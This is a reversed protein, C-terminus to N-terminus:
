ASVEIEARHNIFRAVNGFKSSETRLLCNNVLEQTQPLKIFLIEADRAHNSHWQSALMAFSAITAYGLM